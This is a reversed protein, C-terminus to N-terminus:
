PGLRVRYVQLAEGPRSLPQLWASARSQDLLRQLADAPLGARDSRGLHAPCDIVYAINLARVRREAEAPPAALAAHAETIGWAMRHYPATLVSLRSEALIFPGEDIESLALGPALRALPAFAATAFCPDDASTAALPAASAAPGPGGAAAGIGGLAFAPGVCVAVALAAVPVMRGALLTEGLDALAAAAIPAAFWAAYPSFRVASLTLVIAALLLAGSAIWVPDTRVTRRRGLWLWGALAVLAPDALRLANQPATRFYDTWPALERVNALWFAKAQPDLGAAPGHICAPDIALYVGAVVAGIGAALVLRLAPPAREGLRAAAALGLGALVLGCVLNIGMSDCAALTWRDPPTQILHLGATGLALTVGYASLSRGDRWGAVWALAMAAGILVLFVSAEIGVAFGLATAAACLMAWRAGPGQVAAAFAVLCCAIQVSHHDVRGPLYEGSLSVALAATLAGVFVAAGGGLRRAVLLVALTPPFIWLLPWVLRLAIEAPAAPLVLTFLKLLAAEAADVLRSWHMYLGLPPQLRTLKQDYWGAGAVLRRVMTLRLADDTDGLSRTLSSAHTAVLGAAAILWVAAATLVLRRRSSLDPIPSLKM